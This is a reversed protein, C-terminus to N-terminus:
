STAKPVESPFIPLLFRRSNYLVVLSVFYDLAAPPNIQLVRTRPGAAPPKRCARAANQSKHPPASKRCLQYYVASVQRIKPCSLQTAICNVRQRERVCFFVAIVVNKLRGRTTHAFLVLLVM